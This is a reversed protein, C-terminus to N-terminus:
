NCVFRLANRGNREKKFRDLIVRGSGNGNTLGGQRWYRDGVKCFKSKKELKFLNSYVDKLSSNGVWIDTMFTLKKGDGLVGKILDEMKSGDIAINM